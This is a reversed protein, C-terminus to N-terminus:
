SGAPTGPGLAKLDAGPTMMRTISQMRENAPRFIGALAERAERARAQDDAYARSVTDNVLGEFLGAIQVNSSFPLTGDNVQTIQPDGLNILMQEGQGRSNNRLANALVLASNRANVIDMGVAGVGYMMQSHYVLQQALIDANREIIGSIDEALSTPQAPPAEGSVATDATAAANQTQPDGPPIQTTPMDPPNPMNGTSM